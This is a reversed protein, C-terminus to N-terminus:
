LGSRVSGGEVTNQTAVRARAGETCFARWTVTLAKARALAHSYIAAHALLGLAHPSFPHTAKPREPEEPGARKRVSCRVAAQEFTRPRRNPSRCPRSATETSARLGPCGYGGGRWKRRGRWAGSCVNQDLETGRKHRLNARTHGASAAPTSKTPPRTAVICWCGCRSPLRRPLM